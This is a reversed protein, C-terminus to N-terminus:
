PRWWPARIMEVEVTAAYVRITLGFQGDKIDVHVGNHCTNCLTILNWLEDPGGQSRFWIHHVHLNSRFGCSQCKWGDRCLVEAKRVAYDADSLRLTM